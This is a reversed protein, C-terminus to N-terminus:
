EYKGGFLNLMFRDFQAQVSNIRGSYDQMEPSRFNDNYLEVLTKLKILGQYNTVVAQSLNRIRQSAEEFSVAGNVVGWDAIGQLAANAAFVVDGEILIRRALDDKSISESSM